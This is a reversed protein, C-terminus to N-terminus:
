GQWLKPQSRVRNPNEYRPFTRTTAGLFATPVPTTLGKEREISKCDWSNLTRQETRVESRATCNVPPRRSSLELSRMGTTSRWGPILSPSRPLHVSFQTQPRICMSVRVCSSRNRRSINADSFDWFLRITSPFILSAIMFLPTVLGEVDTGTNVFLTQAVRM